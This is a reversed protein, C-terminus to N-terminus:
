MGHVKDMHDAYCSGSSKTHCIWVERTPDEDKCLSCVHTTKKRKCQRCLGQLMYSTPAGNKMRRFKKTPTLHAYVGCRARGTAWDMTPSINNNSNNNNARSRVAPQSTDYTNDILEEALASYFEKQKEPSNTCKHYILWSDVAIIGLITM